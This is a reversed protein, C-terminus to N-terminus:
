LHRYAAQDPVVCNGAGAPDSMSCDHRQHVLLNPGRQGLDDSRACDSTGIKHRPQPFSTVAEARLSHIPLQLEVRAEGLEIVTHYVDRGESIAHRERHQDIGVIRGCPEHAHMRPKIRDSPPQYGSLRRQDVFVASQDTHDLDVAPEDVTDVGVDHQAGFAPEVTEGPAPHRQSHAVLGHNELRETTRRRDLRRSRLCDAFREIPDGFPLLEHGVVGILGHIYGPRLQARQHQLGDLRM